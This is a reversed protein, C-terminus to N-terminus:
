QKVGDVNLHIESCTLSPQLWNLFEDVFEETFRESNHLLVGTVCNGTNILYLDETLGGSLDNRYVPATANLQPINREGIKQYNQSGLATHLWTGNREISNIVQLFYEDAELSVLEGVNCNLNGESCGV